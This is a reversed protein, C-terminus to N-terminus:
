FEKSVFELSAGGGMKSRTGGMGLRRVDGEGILCDEGGGGVRM